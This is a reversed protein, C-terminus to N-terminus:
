AFHRSSVAPLEGLELHRASPTLHYAKTRGAVVAELVRRRVVVIGLIALSEFFLPDLVKLNCSGKRKHRHRNKTDVRLLGETLTLDLLDSRSASGFQIFLVADISFLPLFGKFM